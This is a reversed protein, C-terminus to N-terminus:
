IHQNTSANAISRKHLCPVNYLQPKIFCKGYKQEDQLGERREGKSVQSLPHKFKKEHSKTKNKDIELQSINICDVITVDCSQPLLFFGKIIDDLTNDL